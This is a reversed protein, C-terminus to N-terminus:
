RQSLQPPRNEPERESLKYELSVPRSSQSSKGDGSGIDPRPPASSTEVGLFLLGPELSHGIDGGLVQVAPEPSFGRFYVTSLVCPLRELTSNSPSTIIIKTSSPGPMKQDVCKGQRKKEKKKFSSFALLSM